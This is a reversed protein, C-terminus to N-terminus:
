AKQSASTPASRNFPLGEEGVRPAVPLAFYGTM